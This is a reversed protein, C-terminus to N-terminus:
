NWSAKITAIGFHEDVLRLLEKAEDIAWEKDKATPKSSDMPLRWHLCVDRFRNLRSRLPEPLAEPVELEFLHDAAGYFWLEVDRVQDKERREYGRESHCLFLGLCYTLGKGFECQTEKEDSM